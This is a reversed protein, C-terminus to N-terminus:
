RRISIVSTLGISFRKILGNNAGKSDFLDTFGLDIGLIPSSVYKKTQALFLIVGANLTSKTNQPFRFDTYLSYGFQFTKDEHGDDTLRTLSLKLNWNDFESYKEGFRATKTKTVTRNTATLTDYESQIDRVEIEDLDSFNSKRSYGLNIALLYKTHLLMNYNIGIGYGTFVKSYLQSQFTTDNRYFQYKNGSIDLYLSIWDTFRDPPTPDNKDFLKFKSIAFKVDTSPSFQNNRFVSAYGETPKAKVGVNIYWYRQDNEPKPNNPLKIYFEGGLTQDSVNAKVLAATKVESTVSSSILPNFLQDGEKTELVQQAYSFTSCLFILLSVTTLSNYRTFAM